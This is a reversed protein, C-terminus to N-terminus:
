EEENEHVINDSSLAFRREIYESFEKSDLLKQWFEATHTDKLRWKKDEVEGTEPDTRSYWGQTPCTVFRGERAIDMLGSYINLGKEFQVNFPFKSKERVFRSKEINITFNYGLLEKGDKDQAKTIIFITNASYMGGTGGSMVDKSYLEMTKYTHNIAICPINKATLHPTVMRWLSKMVKARTMDAVSKGSLTDEVEKKSAVNGISDIFIVVNDDVGIADMRKMLDFRLEELDMIPIHVVRSTDIGNSEIYEPTIGFETDYFLCVSDENAKMYTKVLLLGLLSKFSKSQGALFTLGSTLGGDLRGSLAVNIIPIATPAHSKKNFFTSDELLAADKVVGAKRMKDMLSM